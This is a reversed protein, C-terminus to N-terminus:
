VLAIREFSTTRPRQSFVQPRVMCATSVHVNAPDFPLNQNTCVVLQYVGNPPAPNLIGPHIAAAINPALTDLFPTAEWVNNASHAIGIGPLYFRGNHNADEVGQFISFVAACNSPLSDTLPQGVSGVLMVRGPCSPEDLRRAQIRTNQVNGGQAAELPVRLANELAHCVDDAKDDDPTASTQRFDLTFSCQRHAVAMYWSVRYTQGQSM